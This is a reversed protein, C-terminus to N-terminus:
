RSRPLSITFVSGEGPTSEVSLDGGMGRALERSIALGLGVGEAASTLKRGVQVFPEFITTLHEAPIGQGTDRVSITARDGAVACGVTILGGSPTFRVANTLLNLVIQDLKSEDVRAVATEACPGQELRLGRGAAQPTVMRLGREVVERLQVPELDYSVQAAEIRSYNLLDNIIGLLQQQSGRIRELFERQQESVPGAVGVDLLQVYGAIANLPTRLEHSLTTLFESKARNAAEAAALRQADALAREEAAKRETLDRTVKAFGVLQGNSDRLATIVVNAWFLSGDKRVRWGEDEFRGERAAVRLEFATKGNEVDEPPYFISFHKGVIEESKYGKIREAGLNWSLVHGTPDLAFIAYDRVSDVLLAYLGPATSAAGPEGAVAAVDRQANKTM